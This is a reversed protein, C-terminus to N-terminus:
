GLLGAIIERDELRRLFWELAKGRCDTRWAVFIQGDPKPELVQRPVLTGATAEARAFSEPVFGVGLGARQAAIKDLMSPLALMDQGSLLGSTRPALNRSSDAAAVSRYKQIDEPRLPEAAAALPHNPAVMFVWTVFGLPQTMYGGGAPSEAPAGIALDARGTALADWLGGYVEALIRVRTGSAERYFERLLPFLRETPILDGLAIRLEVEYGTAVRKVRAELEGAAQLLRRGERLLERGAETLLARHGSRDFLQVGLDDELKQVSYTIASPVRHLEDAAAAFSGNRDIADIVTLADLSLRIM